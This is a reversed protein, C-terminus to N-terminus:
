GRQPGTCALAAPHEGNRTPTWQPPRPRRSAEDYADPSAYGLGLQGDRNDGWCHVSGETTVACCFYGACAIDLTPGTDLCGRTLQRSLGGDVVGYTDLGECEVHEACRACTVDAGLVFQDCGDNLQDPLWETRRGWCAVSGDAFRACTGSGGAVLHEPVGELPVVEPPLRANVGESPRIAPAAGWCSVAGDRGVACSHFQGVVIDSAVAVPVALATAVERGEAPGVQGRWAGGWCSVLGDGHLACTHFADGYSAISRASDIGLVSVPVASGPVMDPDDGTHPGDGLQEAHDAGWCHVEGARSVSCSHGVGLALGASPPLGRVRVPRLRDDRTGDGLEGDRNQGWCWVGGDDARACAHSFGLEVDVVPPLEVVARGPSRCEPVARRNGQEASPPRHEAGPSSAGCGSFAALGWIAVALGLGGSAGLGRGGHGSQAAEALRQGAQLASSAAAAASAAAVLAERDGEEGEGLAEGGEGLAGRVAGRGSVVATHGTGAAAGEVDGTSHEADM